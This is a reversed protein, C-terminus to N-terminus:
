FFRVALWAARALVEFENLSTYNVSEGEASGDGGYGEAWMHSVISRM